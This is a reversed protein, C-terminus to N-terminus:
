RDTGEPHDQSAGEAIMVGAGGVRSRAVQSVETFLPEDSGLVQVTV